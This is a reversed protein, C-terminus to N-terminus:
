PWHDGLRDRLIERARFYHTKVSGESCKMVVATETVSLEQWGRLLIAQQQRLSLDALVDELASCADSVQVTHEPRRAHPDPHAEIPNEENEKSFFWSFWKNKLIRKRHATTIQNYLIRFFLPKWEEQPKRSYKEVFKLMADQVIDLADDCQGTNVLAIRYAQREVSRLFSDMVQYYWERGTAHQVSVARKTESFSVFRARSM